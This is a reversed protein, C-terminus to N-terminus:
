VRSGSLRKQEVKLWFAPLPMSLEVIVHESTVRNVMGYVSVVTGDPPFVIYGHIKQHLTYQGATSARFVFGDAFLEELPYHVDDLYIRPASEAPYQLHGEEARKEQYAGAHTNLAMAAADATQADQATREIETAVRDHPICATVCRAVVTDATRRIILVPVAHKSGDPFHIVAIHMQQLVYEPSSSRFVLGGESIENLPWESGGIMITPCNHEQYRLRYAKRREVPVVSDVGMGGRTIM